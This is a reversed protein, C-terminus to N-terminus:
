CCTNSKTGPGPITFEAQYANQSNQLNKVNLWIDVGAQWSVRDDDAGEHLDQDVFTITRQLRSMKGHQFGTSFIQQDLPVRSFWYDISWDQSNPFIHCVKLIIEGGVPIQFPLCQTLGSGIIYQGWADQQETPIITVDPGM